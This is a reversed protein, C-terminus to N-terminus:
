LRGSSSYGTHVITAAHISALLLSPTDQLVIYEYLENDTKIPILKQQSIERFVLPVYTRRDKRRLTRKRSRCPMAVFLLSPRRNNKDGLLKSYPM